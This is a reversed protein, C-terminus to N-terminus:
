RNGDAMIMITTTTGDDGMMLMHIIYFRDDDGKLGCDRKHGLMRARDEGRGSRDSRIIMIAM